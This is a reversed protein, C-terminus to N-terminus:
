LNGRLKMFMYVNRSKKYPKLFKQYVTGGFFFFDIVITNTYSKIVNM